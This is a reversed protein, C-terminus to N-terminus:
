TDVAGFFNDDKRGIEAGITMMFDSGMRSARLQKINAPQSVTCFTALVWDAWIGSASSFGRPPWKRILNTLGKLPASILGFSRSLPSSSPNEPAIIKGFPSAGSLFTARSVSPDTAAFKIYLLKEKSRLATMSPSLM